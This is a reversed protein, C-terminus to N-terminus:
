HDETLSIGAKRNSSKKVENDRFVGGIGLIVMLAGVLTWITLSEDLILWGLMLALVPNVYAYTMAISIPLLKLTRIYSTFAIVSGFVILYALAVWASHTAQPWHQGTLFVITIFGVGGFLHQYAAVVTAELNMPLRTQLVSAAAWSIAGLCIVLGAALDTTIGRTLSPAILVIIGALSLFLSGLLLKTPRKRDLLSEIFASFIPTSAIVLAAFGSNARQEAWMVLGNGSVWLLIGSIFLMRFEKLSITIRHHNLIAITFLIVAAMAMRISGATWVAFGSGPAVMIRIALYTSSWVIYVVLLHGLGARSLSSAAEPKISPM